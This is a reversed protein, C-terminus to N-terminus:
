WAPRGRMPPSKCCSPRTIAPVRFRQPLVLDDCAQEREVRMRRAALWVLPNFWHLSGAIYALTQTLWDLRKIHALEHLLVVRRRELPWNEAADPLLLVPHWAGCTM